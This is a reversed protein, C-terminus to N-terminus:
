AANEERYRKLKNQLTRVTVGLRFAAATRNGGVERLTELIRHREMEALTMGPLSDADDNQQEKSMWPEIMSATLKQGWDLASAREIINELERVNGPWEYNQLLHLAERIVSSSVGFRTALESEPLKQGLSYTGDLIANRLSKVTRETLSERRVLASISNAM